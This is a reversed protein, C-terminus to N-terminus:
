VVVARGKDGIQLSLTSPHSGDGYDARWMDHGPDYVVTATMGDPHQITDGEHIPKGDFDKFHCKRRESREARQALTLLKKM